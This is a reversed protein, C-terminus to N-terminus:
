VTIIFENFTLTVGTDIRASFSLTATRTAKDIELVLRLVEVVGPTDQITQRFISRIVAENPGQVFVDRFFPIGEREDMFWEALFFRLRIRLHQEIAAASEVLSLEGDTIDLDHQTTLTLDM